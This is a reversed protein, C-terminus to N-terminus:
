IYNKNIMNYESNYIFLIFNGIDKQLSVCINNEIYNGYYNLKTTVNNDIFYSIILISVLLIYTLGWNVAAEYIPCNIISNM